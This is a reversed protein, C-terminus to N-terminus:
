YGLHLEQAEATLKSLQKRRKKAEESKALLAISSLAIKQDSNTIKHISSSM